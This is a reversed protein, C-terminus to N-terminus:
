LFRNNSELFRFLCSGACETISRFKCRCGSSRTTERRGVAKKSKFNMESCSQNGKTKLLNYTLPWVASSCSRFSRRKVIEFTAASVVSRRMIRGDMAMMRTEPKFSIQKVLLSTM